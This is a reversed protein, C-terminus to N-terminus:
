ACRREWRLRGIGTGDAEKRSLKEVGEQPTCNGGVLTPQPRHGNSGLRGDRVSGIRRVWDM